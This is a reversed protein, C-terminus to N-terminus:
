EGTLHRPQMTGAGAPVTAFTDPQVPPPAFEDLSRRRTEPIARIQPQSGSRETTDPGLKVIARAPPVQAASHPAPRATTGSGSAPSQSPTPATTPFASRYTGPGTPVPPPPLTSLQAGSRLGSILIHCLSVATLVMAGFLAMRWLPAEAYLAKAHEIM